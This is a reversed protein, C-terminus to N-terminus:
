SRRFRCLIKVSPEGHDTGTGALRCLVRGDHFPSMTGVAEIGRLASLLRMDELFVVTPDPAPPISSRAPREARVSLVHVSYNRM